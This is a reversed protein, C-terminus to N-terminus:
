ELMSVQKELKLVNAIHGLLTQTMSLRIFYDYIPMNYSLNGVMCYDM